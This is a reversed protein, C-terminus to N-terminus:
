PRSFAAVYARYCRGVLSDPPFTGMLGGLRPPRSPMPSRAPTTPRAPLKESLPRQGQQLIVRVKSFFPTDMFANARELIEPTQLSLEQLAMSDEAGVLLVGDKHGLPLALPALAEGMVMEWNDWLACIRFNEEGGYAALLINVAEQVSRLRKERKILSRKHGM